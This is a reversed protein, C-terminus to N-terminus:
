LGPPSLLCMDVPVSKSVRWGHIDTQESTKGWILTLTLASAWAMIIYHWLSVFNFTLDAPNTWATGSRVVFITSQQTRNGSRWICVNQTPLTDLAAVFHSFLFIEASVLCWFLFLEREFANLSFYHVQKSLILLLFNLYLKETVRHNHCLGKRSPNSGRTDLQRVTYFCECSEPRQTGWILHKRWWVKGSSNASREGGRETGPGCRWCRRMLNEERTVYSARPRLHQLVAKIQPKWQTGCYASLSTGGCTRAQM